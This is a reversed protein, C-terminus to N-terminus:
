GRKGPKDKEKHGQETPQCEWEGDYNASQRQSTGAKLHTPIVTSKQWAHSCFLVVSEAKESIVQQHTTARLGVQWGEIERGGGMGEGKM